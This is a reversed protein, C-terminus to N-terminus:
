RRHINTNMWDVSGELSQKTSDKLIYSLWGDIDSDNTPRHVDIQQHSFFPHSGFNTSGWCQAILRKFDNFTIRDTPHELVCHLHHRQGDSVERVVLMGLEKGFRRHANGFVKRNLQNKFHRFNQESSVDDIKLGNFNQRQTLTVSIPNAIRNVWLFARIGDDLGCLVDCKQNKM